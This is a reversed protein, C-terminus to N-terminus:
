RLLGVNCQMTVTVYGRLLPLGQRQQLHYPCRRCHNRHRSGHLDRHRELALDLEMKRWDQSQDAVGDSGSCKQDFARV